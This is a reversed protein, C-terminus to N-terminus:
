VSAWAPRRSLIPSANANFKFNRKRGNEYPSFTNFPTTRRTPKKVTAPLRNVTM